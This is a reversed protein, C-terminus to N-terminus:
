KPRWKPTGFNPLDDKHNYATRAYFWCRGYRSALHMVRGDQLYTLYFGPCYGPGFIKVNRELVGALGAGFRSAEYTDHCLATVRAGSRAAQTLLARGAWIRPHAPYYLLRADPSLKQWSSAGVLLDDYKSAVHFRPTKKGDTVSKHYNEGDLCVPGKDALRNLKGVQAKHWAPDFDDDLKGAEHSHRYGAAFTWGLAECRRRVEPLHRSHDQNYADVAVCLVGTILSRLDPNKELNPLIWWLAHSPHTYLWREAPLRYTRGRGRKRTVPKVPWRGDARAGRRAEQAKEVM